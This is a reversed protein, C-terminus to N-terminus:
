LEAADATAPPSCLASSALAAFSLYFKDM